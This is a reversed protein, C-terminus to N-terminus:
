RGEYIYLIHYDIRGDPRYSGTDIDLKQCGCSNVAIYESSLSETSIIDM